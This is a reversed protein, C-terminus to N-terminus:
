RARQLVQVDAAGSKNCVTRLSQGHSAPRPGNTLRANGDDSCRATIPTSMVSALLRPSQKQENASLRLTM